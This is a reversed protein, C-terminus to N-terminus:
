VAKGWRVVEARLFKEFEAPTTGAVDVGQVSLRERVDPMNLVRVIDAHLKKVIAQPTRAAVAVGWWSTMDYEPYGAEAITPLDPSGRSRAKSTVAIARLRGAKIQGDLALQSGFTYGLQGSIVDNLAPALGKYPVHVVDIGAQSKFVEGMLHASGGNGTSAYSLQGPRSKAYAVLEKVTKVPLQPAAALIMPAAGIETVPAFDRLTDFPLKSYLTANVAFAVATLLLTHGDPASKAVIDTGITTGGGARNDVIVQQGWLEALKQSVLRGIFDNIAGPTYPVVFRVPRSPFGPATDAAAAVSATLAAALLIFPKM